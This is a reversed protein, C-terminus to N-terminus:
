RAQRITKGGPFPLAPDGLLGQAQLEKYVKVAKHRDTKILKGFDVWSIAKGQGIDQADIEGSRIMYWARATEISIDAWLVKKSENGISMIRGRRLSLFKCSDCFPIIFPLTNKIKWCPYNYIKDSFVTAQLEKEPLPIALSNNKGIIINRAFSVSDNSIGNKTMKCYLTFLADRREGIVLPRDIIHRICDPGFKVSYSVEILDRYKGPPIIVKGQGGATRGPTNTDPGPLTVPGTVTNPFTALKAEIGRDPLFTYVQGSPHKSPPAVIYQGNGQVEYKVGAHIGTQKAGARSTKYYFHYGRKTKVTATDQPLNFRSIVARAQEITITKDQGEPDPDIDVVFMGSRDGTLIAINYEPHSTFLEATKQLTM